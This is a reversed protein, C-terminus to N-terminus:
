MCIHQFQLNSQISWCMKMILMHIAAHITLPNILRTGIRNMFLDFYFVIMISWLIIIQCNNLQYTYFQNKPSVVVILSTIVSTPTRRWATFVNNVLICTANAFDPTAVVNCIMLIASQRSQGDWVLQDESVAVGSKAKELFPSYWEWIINRMRRSVNAFQNM